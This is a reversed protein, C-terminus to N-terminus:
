HEADKVNCQEQEELKAIIDTLCGVHYTRTQGNGNKYPLVVGWQTPDGALNFVQKKCIHCTIEM